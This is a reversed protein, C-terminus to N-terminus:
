KQPQLEMVLGALLHPQSSGAGLWGFPGTAVGCDIPAATVVVRFDKKAQM